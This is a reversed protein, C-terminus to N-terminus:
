YKLWGSRRERACIQNILMPHGVQRIPHWFHNSCRSCRMLPECETWARFVVGRPADFVRTILVQEAQEKKPSNKAAM